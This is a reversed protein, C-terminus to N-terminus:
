QVDWTNTTERLRAIGGNITRLATSKPAGSELDIAANLMYGVAAKMEKAMHEITDAADNAWAINRPDNYNKSEDRLWQAIQNPNILCESKM